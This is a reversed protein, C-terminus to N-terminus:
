KCYNAPILWCILISIVTLVGCRYWREPLCCFLFAFCVVLGSITMMLPALPEDCPEYFSVYTSAIMLTGIIGSVASLLKVCSRKKCGCCKPRELEFETAKPCMNCCTVFSPCNKVCCGDRNDYESMEDQNLFSLATYEKAFGLALSFWLSVFARKSWFILLHAKENARRPKKGWNQVIIIPNSKPTSHYFLILDLNALLLITLLKFIQRIIM